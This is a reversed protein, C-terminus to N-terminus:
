VARKRITLKKRVILKKPRPKARMKSAKVLEGLKENREDNQKRLKWFGIAILVMWLPITSM